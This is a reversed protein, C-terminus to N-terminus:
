LIKIWHTCKWIEMNIEKRELRVSGKQMENKGLLLMFRKEGLVCLYFCDRM